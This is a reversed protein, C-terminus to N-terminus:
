NNRSIGYLTWTYGEHETGGTLVIVWGPKPTSQMPSSALKITEGALSRVVDIGAKRADWSQPREGGAKGFSSRACSRGGVTAYRSLVVEAVCVKGESLPARQGPSESQFNM